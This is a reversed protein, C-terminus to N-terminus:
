RDPFLIEFIHPLSQEWSAESHTGYPVVRATVFAGKKILEASTEAFYERMHPHNAFERSGYDTYILTNKGFRGEKIFEPVGDSVWVSPSLAAGRSFVRNYKSLAYLTMLGGMSSGGIGTNLRDPLTPYNEDIFPKFESVLWNMYKRGKARILKGDDLEFPVPTYEELRCDGDHNCEVAAIIVKIGNFDLFDGLRWSRGYTAEGDDFLNHGDFMYMVPCREGEELDDPIYVFARRETDGTLRPICINFREVM